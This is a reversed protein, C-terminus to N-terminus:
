ATASQSNAYVTVRESIISDIGAAYRLFVRARQSMIPLGSYTKQALTSAGARGITAPFLMTSGVNVVSSIWNTGTAIVPINLWEANDQGGGLVSNGAYSIVSTRAVDYWTIGGDDTTQFVASAGGSVISTSYKVLVNDTDQPLNFPLARGGLISTPGGGQIVTNNYEFITIPIRIAM